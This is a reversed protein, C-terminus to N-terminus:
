APLTSDHLLAKIKVDVINFDLTGIVNAEGLLLLLSRKM